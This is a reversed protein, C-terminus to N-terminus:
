HTKRLKSKGCRRACRYWEINTYTISNTGCVPNYQMTAQCQDECTSRRTASGPIAITTTRPNPTTPRLVFLDGNNQSQVNSGENELWEVEHHNHHSRERNGNLFLNGNQFGHGVNQLWQNQNENEFRRGNNWPSRGSNQFDAGTNQFQSSGENDDNPFIIRRDDNVSSGDRFINQRPKRVLPQSVARDTRIDNVETPRNSYHTYCQVDQLQVIGSVSILLIILVATPSFFIHRM